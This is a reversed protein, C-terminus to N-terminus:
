KKNLIKTIIIQTTDIKVTINEGIMFGFSELYKGELRIVPHPSVCGNGYYGYYIKRTRSFEKQEETKM